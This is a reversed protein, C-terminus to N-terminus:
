NVENPLCDRVLDRLINEWMKTILDNGYEETVAHGLSLHFYITNFLHTAPYPIETNLFCLIVTYLGFLIAVM